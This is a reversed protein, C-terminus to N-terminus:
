AKAKKRAPKAPAPSQMHGQETLWTRLIRDLMNSVSRGDAAAARALAAKIDADLRMSTPVVPTM